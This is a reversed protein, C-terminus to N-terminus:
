ALHLIQLQGPAIPDRDRHTGLPLKKFWTTLIQIPDGHSVLLFFQNENEENLERVLNSMRDGVSNVSEVNWKTHSADLRDEEWVQGYGSDDSQDLEGFWRERLQQRIEVENGCSEAVIEATQRARLFDSSLIRPSSGVMNLIVRVQNLVSVKGAETLGFDVCGTAPDSVILKQANALSKGHRMVFFSNRLDLDMQNRSPHIVSILETMTADTGMDQVLGIVPVSRLIRVRYRVKRVAEDM